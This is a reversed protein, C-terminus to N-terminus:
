DCVMGLSHTASAGIPSRGLTEAIRRARPPRMRMREDLNMLIRILAVISTVSACPRQHVM